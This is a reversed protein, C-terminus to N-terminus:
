YDIVTVLSVSSNAYGCLHNFLCIVIKDRKNSVLLIRKYFKQIFAIVRKLDDWIDTIIQRM